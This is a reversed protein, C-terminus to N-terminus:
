SRILQLSDFFLHRTMGPDAMLGVTAVRTLDIGTVASIPVRMTELRLATCNETTGSDDVALHLVPRRPVFPGSIAASSVVATAGTVDTVVVSFEPLQGAAITTEDTLDFDATVRLTLADFGNWDVQGPGLAVTYAEGSALPPEVGLVATVHNTEAGLDRPGIVIDPFPDVFAGSIIRPKVPDEMDDITVVQAGFSWQLSAGAGLTNTATGDFLGQPVTDGLLRWRFLGGIYEKALQHHESESLLRGGV